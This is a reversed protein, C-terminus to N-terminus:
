QVVLAIAENRLAAQKTSQTTQSHRRLGFVGAPSEKQAEELQGM